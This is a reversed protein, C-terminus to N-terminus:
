RNPFAPTVGGATVRRMRALAKIHDYVVTLYDAQARGALAENRVITEFPIDANAINKQGLEAASRSREFREKALVMKDTASKWALYSNIAELEILQRTKAYVEDQRTSYAHARAVRDERKGVLTTPLEPALAGPRYEGNRSPGPIFRAHLDTGSALTPVTTRFRLRDQACVELRFVDVGAAAQALEPRNALALAVVQEQTVTGGMVPLEVDRPVVDSCQEVGLAERLAALALRQGIQADIRLRKVEAIAEQLAYITFQNVRKTPATELLNKAIDYFAQLQDIVYTATQEEQRAYVFGYYLITVDHAIETEAKQIEAFAVTLGRAAQERRIPLDPALVTTFPHINGLARQGAESAALAARAARVTPNRDHAIAICEALSHPQGPAPPPAPRPESKESQNAPRPPQLAVSKEAAPQQGAAPDCAWLGIASGVAASLCWLRVARGSGPIKLPM